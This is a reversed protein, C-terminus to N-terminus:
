SKKPKVIKPIGHVLKMSSLNGLSKFNLHGLIKHWLESDGEDGEVSLCKTETTEVNVKFIKNRVQQSQIIMKQDSDYLKLLNDKMTVSFCKEILQGVSMLNNRMGLVYWVDKIMVTKDNKLRVNVNGMEETDLYKDEVCRIKTRKRSDFNILWQKNGTLHNSFGTDMYWQYILYGGDSKSTILLM